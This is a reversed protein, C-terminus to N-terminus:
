DASQSRDCWARVRDCWQSLRSAYNRLDDLYASPTTGKPAEDQVWGAYLSVGDCSFPGELTGPRVPKAGLTQLFASFDSFGNRADDFSHILIAAIDTRYRKAEYIASASRHLLQYRLLRAKDSPLGLTTCLKDLRTKKSASGDLWKNAPEGFSEGAKGEVAVIAIGQDLGVVALLDTQSPRGATGLDVQRELFADVLEATNFVPHSKLVTAVSAPFGNKRFWLQTLAHASRGEKWHSEQKGLYRVVDEPEILPVYLRPISDLM